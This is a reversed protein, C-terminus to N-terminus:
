CICVISHSTLNSQPITYNLRLADFIVVNWGLIINVPLQFLKAQFALHNVALSEASQFGAETCPLRSFASEGELGCSKWSSLLPNIGAFKDMVHPSQKGAGSRRAVVYFMIVSYM